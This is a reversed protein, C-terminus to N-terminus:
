YDWQNAAAAPHQDQPRWVNGPIPTASPDSANLYEVNVLTASGNTAGGDDGNEGRAIDDLTADLSGALTAYPATNFTRFTVTASRSALVTGDSATVNAFVNVALRGEAVNDNGQLYITCSAEPCASPTASPEASALSLQAQAQISCNAGDSFVCTPEPSPLPVSRPDTKSAIAQAISAQENSIAAAIETRAASLARFRLSSQALAGAGHVITEGLLSILALLFMARLLM